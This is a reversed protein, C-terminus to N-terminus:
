KYLSGVVAETIANTLIDWHPPLNILIKKGSLDRDHILNNM